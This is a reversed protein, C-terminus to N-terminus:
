FDVQMNEVLKEFNLESEGVFSDVLLLGKGMCRNM